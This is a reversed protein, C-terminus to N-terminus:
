GRNAFIKIQEAAKQLEELKELIAQQKKLTEENTAKLEQLAKLAAAPAESIPATPKGPPSMPTAAQVIIPEPTQGNVSGIPLAPLILLLPVLRYFANM